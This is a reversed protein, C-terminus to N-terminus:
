SLSNKEKEEKSENKLTEEGQKNELPNVELIGPLSKRDVANREDMEYLWGMGIPACLIAIAMIMHFVCISEPRTLGLNTYRIFKTIAFLWAFIYNSCIAYALMNILVFVFYAGFNIVYYIAKKRVLFYIKRMMKINFAIYFVVGICLEVLFSEKGRPMFGSEYLFTVLSSLAVCGWVLHMTRRAILEMVLKKM